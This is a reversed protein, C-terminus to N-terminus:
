RAKGDRCFYRGPTSKELVKEKWIPCENCKCVKKTDIDKCNAKGTSCYLGPVRDPGMMMPSDLDQNKILFLIKEKDKVCESEIQVACRTCLCKNINEMSFDIKYKIKKGGNLM